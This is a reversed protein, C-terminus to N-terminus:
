TLSFSFSGHCVDNVELSFLTGLETLASGTANTTVALDRGDHVAVVVFRDVHGELAVGGKEGQTGLVRQQRDLNLALLGLEGQRLVDLTVDELAEDTM